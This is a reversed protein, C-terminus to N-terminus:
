LVLTYKLFTFHMVHVSQLDRREKLVFYGVLNAIERELSDNIYLTPGLCLILIIMSVIKLINTPSRGMCERDASYCQISPVMM